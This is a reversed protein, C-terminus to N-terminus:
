RDIRRQKRGAKAERVLTSCSVHDLVEAVLKELSRPRRCLQIAMEGPSVELSFLEIRRSNKVESIRDMCMTLNTTAIESVTDIKKNEHQEGNM